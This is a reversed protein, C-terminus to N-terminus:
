TMHDCGDKVFSGFALRCVSVVLCSLVVSSRAASTGTTALQGRPMDSCELVVIISSMLEVPRNVDLSTELQNWRNVITFM